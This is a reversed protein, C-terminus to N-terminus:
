VTDPPGIPSSGSKSAAMTYAGMKPRLTYAPTRHAKPRQGERKESTMLRQAPPPGTPRPPTSPREAPRHPRKRRPPTPSSNLKEMSKVEVNLCGFDEQVTGRMQYVGRGRFPYAKAVPPFHVTDIWQGERDVFCGFLMRDGKVTGTEKVTVLYGAITVERGIHEPLARAPM